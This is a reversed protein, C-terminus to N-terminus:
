HKFSTIHDDSIGGTPRHRARLAKLRPLDEYILEMIPRHLHACFLARRPQATLRTQWFSIRLESKECSRM